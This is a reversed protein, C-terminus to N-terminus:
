WDMLCLVSKLVHGVKNGGQDVYRATNNFVRLMPILGNSTGNTQLCMRSATNWVVKMKGHCWLVFKWRRSFFSWNTLSAHLSCRGIVTRSDMKVTMELCIRTLHCQDMEPVVKSGSLEESIERIILEDSPNTIVFCSAWHVTRFLQLFCCM